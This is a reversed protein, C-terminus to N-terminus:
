EHVERYLDSEILTKFTASGAPYWENVTWFEAPTEYGTGNTVRYLLGFGRTRRFYRNEDTDFEPKVETRAPEAITTPEPKPGELFTLFVEAAAVVGSAGSHFDLGIARDLAYRRNDKSM